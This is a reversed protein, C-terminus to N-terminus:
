KGALFAELTQNFAQPKELFLAHGADSIVELKSGAIKSQLYEGLLRNSDPVVVLTPTQIRLLAPRRDGTFLDFLLAIATGMPTKLSGDALEKYRLEAQQSKFMSRVFQDARKERDEEIGLLVTRIQQYTAGFPYDADKFGAPAGDVLVLKEPIVAEPSSVYELLTVVGASWGVLIPEDIKLVKLFAHLDAAQQQYTNGGETKTTLGQSRPDFAIVHFDRAAFYPIQERWVEATMTWGPIFVLYREGTGAELYRIKIDGVRVSLDRWVGKQAKAPMASCALMLIILTFCCSLKPM